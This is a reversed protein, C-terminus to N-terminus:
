TSKRRVIERQVENGLWDLTKIDEARKETRANQTRHKLTVGEFYPGCEEFSSNHVLDQAEIIKRRYSKLNPPSMNQIREKQVVRVTVGFGCDIIRPESM